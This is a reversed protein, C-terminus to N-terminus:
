LLTLALGNVRQKNFMSLHILFSLSYMCSVYQLGFFKQPSVKTRLALISFLTFVLGHM